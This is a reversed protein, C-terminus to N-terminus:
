LLPLFASLDAREGSARVAGVALAEAWTVRGCALRTWTVPDAEVVNAPTGRTHRPGEICQVAAYPPVRVEVSRGPAVEALAAVLTRVVLRWAGAPLEPRSGPASRATDSTGETGEGAGTRDAVSRALDDAHVVLEIVRTTLLDSLRIAGRRGVVVADTGPEGGSGDTLEGLRTIMGAWSADLSGLPDAANLRARERASEAIEPAGAPYSAVYERITLPVVRVEALAAGTVAEVSRGVHAVLEAVTWEDLVSPDGYTEAPLAGIWERLAVWTEELVARVEAVDM